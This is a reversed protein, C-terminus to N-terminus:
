AERLSILTPTIDIFQCDDESSDEHIVMLFNRGGELVGIGAHWVNPRYTIGVNGPVRFAQLTSILPRDDSGNECVVVLYNAVDLPFFSQTSYPHRELVKLQVENSQTLDDAQVQALNIPAKPRRNEIVGFNNRRGADGIPRFVFGFPTFLSDQIQQIQIQKSMQKMQAAGFTM